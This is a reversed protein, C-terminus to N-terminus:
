SNKFHYEDGRRVVPTDVGDGDWDGMYVIDGSRGYSVVRDAAGGSLSNKFHYTKGRRVALTDGGRGDWNGVFLRDDDRGYAFSEHVVGRWENTLYFRDGYGDVEAGKGAVPAAVLLLGLTLGVATGTRRRMTMTSGGPETRPWRVDTPRLFCRPGRTGVPPVRPVLLSTLAHQLRRRVCSRVAQLVAQARVGAGGPRRHPPGHRRGGVRGVATRRLRHPQADAHRGGVARGRPRHLHLGLRAAPRGVAPALRPPRQPRQAPAQLGQLPRPLDPGQLRPPLGGPRPGAVHLPEPGLQPRLGRPPRHGGPHAGDDLLRLRDGLPPGRPRLAGRGRRL